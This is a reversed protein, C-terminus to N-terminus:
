KATKRSTRAKKPTEAKEIPEKDVRDSSATKAAKKLSILVNGASSGIVM